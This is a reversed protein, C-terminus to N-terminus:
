VSTLIGHAEARYLDPQTPDPYLVRSGHIHGCVVSLDCVQTFKHYQADIAFNWDCGAGVRGRFAITELVRRKILTFGQGVGAVEIVKGWSDRATEPYRTISHGEKVGLKVYANWEKPSERWCYLGYAIDVNLDALRQLGDPPVIMDSEACLFYDWEGRLFVDQAALYKFAVPDAYRDDGGNPSYHDIGGDRWTLQYISDHAAPYFFSSNHARRILTTVFVKM